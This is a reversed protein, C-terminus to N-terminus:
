IGSYNGSRSLDVSTSQDPQDDSIQDQMMHQLQQQQQLQHQQDNQQQERDSLIDYIQHHYRNISLNVGSAPIQFSSSNHYGGILSRSSMDVGQFDSITENSSNSRFEAIDMPNQENGGGYKMRNEGLNNVNDGGEHGLNNQGDNNYKSYLIDLQQAHPMKAKMDTHNNNISLNQAVIISNEDDSSLQSIQHSGDKRRPIGSFDYRPLSQPSESGDIHNDQLMSYNRRCNELSIHHNTNTNNSYMNIPYDQGPSIARPSPTAHHSFNENPTSVSDVDIDNNNEKLILNNPIPSQIYSNQNFNRENEFEVHNMHHDVSSNTQNMNLSNLNEESNSSSNNKIEGENDIMNSVSNLAAEVLMSASTSISGIQRTTNYFGSVLSSQHHHHHIQPSVSLHQLQQMNDPTDIVIAPSNYQNQNTEVVDLITSNDDDDNDDCQNNGGSMILKSLFDRNVSMENTDNLETNIWKKSGKSVVLSQHPNSGVCMNENMRYNEHDKDINDNSENSMMSLDGGNELNLRSSTESLFSEVLSLQANQQQSEIQPPKIQAVANHMDKPVNYNENQSHVDDDGVQSDLGDDEDDIDDDDSIDSEDRNLNERHIEQNLFSSITTSFLSLNPENKCIDSMDKPQM